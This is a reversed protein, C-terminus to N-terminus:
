PRGHRPPHPIRSQPVPVLGADIFSGGTFSSLQANTNTTIAQLAFGAAGSTISSDTVPATNVIFGNVYMWLNTGIIVGQITDGVNLTWVVQQLNTRVGAVFKQITVKGASGLTGQWVFRYCTNVGSTSQRLSVGVVSNASCRHVTVRAWQDKDWTFGNWYSDCVTSAVSPTLLNSLIQATNGAVTPSWNGGIPNVNARTFNDVSRSNLNRDTFYLPVNRVGEYGATLQVITKPTYTCDIGHAIGNNTITAYQYTGPTPATLAEVIAQDLLNWNFDGVHQSPLTAYYTPSDSETWPGGPGQSVWRFVEAEGPGSVYNPRITGSWNYFYGQAGQAISMNAVPWDIIPNKPSKVWHIGDTSTVLGMKWSTLYTGSNGGTYYGWWTGNSDVTAINLQGLFTTQEWAQTKTIANALALTWGVGDSSTYVSVANPPTNMYAYYTSGHKYVHGFDGGGRASVAIVPNRVYPTFAKGDHSEAYSLGDVGHWMKFVKGDPNASIIKPNAEYLVNPNGIGRGTTVLGTVTGQPLWTNFNVAYPSSVVNSDSIGTVAALAKITAPSNVVVTGGSVISSSSHTPTSGDITYFITATPTASSITVTLPFSGSTFHGNVPSFTPDATVTAWIGGAWNDIIGNTLETVTNAYIDPFGSAISADTVTGCPYVTLATGVVALRIVGKAALM